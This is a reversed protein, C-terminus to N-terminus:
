KLEYVMLDARATKHQWAVNLYNQRFRDLLMMKAEPLENWRKAIGLRSLEARNELIFRVGQEQLRAYLGAANESLAAERFLPQRDFASAYL